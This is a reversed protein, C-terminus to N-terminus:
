AIIAEIEAPSASKKMFTVTNDELSFFAPYKRMLVDGFIVYDFGAPFAMSQLGLLCESVGAQTVKVVYDDPTLVYDTDDITVTIDPNQEYGACTRKVKIGEILPGIIAKPGVILSTGSDIVAKYDSTPVAKDGVKLASLKLAWYRQEVVQHKAIDDYGTDKGPVVMYSGESDTSHKLYMSFSREPLDAIDMFTKLNDVSITDYGLGIIGSMKSAIFSIGSVSTILGFGMHQATISDGISATDYALSGKIGGSGYTIDFPKGDNVFTSSKSSDFLPHTFCPIAWCKHSYVWLNSSGTDPVMTFTQAPTGINVRIFYQADMYDEIKVHDGAALEGGLYKENISGLQGNIMDLTLPNQEIDIRQGAEALGLLAAIASSTKM